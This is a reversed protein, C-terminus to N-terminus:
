APADTTPSTAFRDRHGSTTNLAACYVSESPAAAATSAASPWGVYEADESAPSMGTMRSAAAAYKATLVASAPAM